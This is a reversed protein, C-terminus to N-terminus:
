IIFYLTPTYKKMIHSITKFFLREKLRPMQMTRYMYVNVENYVLSAQWIERERLRDRARERERM